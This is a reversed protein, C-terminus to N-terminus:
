RVPLSEILDFAYLFVDADHHRHRSSHWDTILELLYFTLDIGAVTKILLPM